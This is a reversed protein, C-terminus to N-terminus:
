FARWFMTGIVIAVIVLVWKVAVARRRDGELGRNQWEMWRQADSKAVVPASAGMLKVDNLVM